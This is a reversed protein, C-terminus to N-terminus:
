LKTIFETVLYTHKKKNQVGQNFGRLHCKYKLCNNEKTVIEVGNEVQLKPKKKIDKYRIKM